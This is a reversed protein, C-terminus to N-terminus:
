KCCFLVRKLPKIVLLVTAGLYWGWHISMVLTHLWPWVTILFLVAAVIGLKILCIDWCHMKKVKKM